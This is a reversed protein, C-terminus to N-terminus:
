STSLLVPYLETLTFGFLALRVQQNQSILLDREATLMRVRAQIDQMHKEVDVLVSQLEDREQM